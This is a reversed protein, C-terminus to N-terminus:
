RRGESERQSEGDGGGARGRGAGAMASHRKDSLPLFRAPGTSPKADQAVASLALLCTEESRPSM